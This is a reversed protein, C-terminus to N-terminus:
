AFWGEMKLEGTLFYAKAHYGEETQAVIECLYVAEKKKDIVEMHKNLYIEKGDMKPGSAMACVTSAFIAATLLISRM